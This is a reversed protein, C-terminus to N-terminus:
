PHIEKQLETEHDIRIDELLNHYRLHEDSGKGYFIRATEMHHAILACIRERMEEQGAKYESTQM